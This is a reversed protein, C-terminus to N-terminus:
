LASTASLAISITLFYGPYSTITVVSLIPLSSSRTLNFSFFFDLDMRKKEKRKVGSQFDGEISGPTNNHTVQKSKMRREEVLQEDFCFISLFAQLPFPFEQELVM